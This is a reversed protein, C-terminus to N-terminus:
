ITWEVADGEEGCRVVAATWWEGYSYEEEMAM